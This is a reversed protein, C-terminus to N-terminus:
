IKTLWLDEIEHKKKRQMLDAIAEKPPKGEYLVKYCENIIPMEVNAKKALLYAAHATKYGEVTMGVKKIAEDVALGEGIYIGARRNRSHMSTCTVILDGIGSLGSFTQALAGNAVGLRTMETIGRTMLAAKTNDGLKLGDCVGAALAIVNKLSGGLEVGVVDSNIYIRFGPNMFTDQVISAAEISRSAAVIATPIKRSVEEAHTPGSLVVTRVNPLEEDIVTSLRKLSSEELGKSVNVIIQNPSLVKSLRKATQRTAFSPVALVVIDAGCGINIDTTLKIDKPVPVGPLLKKNEGDRKIAEIESEFCSWLSVDHGCAACMIALATGWGGSGYIAIKSM